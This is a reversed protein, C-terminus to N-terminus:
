GVEKWMVGVNGNRKRVFVAGCANLEKKVIVKDATLGENDFVAQVTTGLLFKTDSNTILFRQDSDKQGLEICPQEGDTTIRVYNTLKNLAELEKKLAAIAETNSTDLLALAEAIRAIDAATEGMSFTWGNETQTMLSAGESDTVLTSIANALQMITSSAGLVEAQAEDATNQAKTVSEISAVEEIAPTWDTSFDGKELKLNWIDLTSGSPMDNLAVYVCQQSAAYGEAIPKTLTIHLQKDAVANFAGSSIMANTGSPDSITVGFPFSATALMDFSLTINEGKAKELQELISLPIPFYLVNYGSSATTCVYRVGNTGNVDIDTISYVGDAATKLWGSAGKNTGPLFNRGGVELSSIAQSITNKDVEGKILSWAFISPDSIDVTKVLQNTVIGIYSKNEPQLSIGSGKDDDAYAVWVYFVRSQALASFQKALDEVKQSIGSKKILHEGLIAQRYQDTESTELTLIRSSLYLEGEDDIINVRDGIKVKKSLGTFDVEYNVEMDCVSKLKEIAYNCLEEQSLTEFSFQKVIHGGLQETDGKWLFRSWKELAKRSKLVAGDIYFDGDDYSYGKLTLPAESDEPTSGTCHLATALNAISKTTVIGDIEKNLRLQLGTDIGRKEYLNIYKKVIQLGSIKFSFSIECNDFSEAISLLRASATQESNWSLKRTLGDVENIGIEWGAGAAYKEVYYSIPYSQDAEYEGVVENLLDLGDDEAYISCKKKKTDIVSDIITYFENEDDSSKLIYNGVEAWEEVKRRTKRDFHIDCEFVSVGTEVDETKVDDTIKVGEPLTTSAQGLINLHRDAFYIIM